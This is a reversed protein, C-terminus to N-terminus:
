RDASLRWGAYDRAGIPLDSVLMQGPSGDAPLVWLESTAGPAEPNASSTLAIVKSGDPSVSAHWAPTQATTLRQPQRGDLPVLFLDEVGPDDAKICRATCASAILV